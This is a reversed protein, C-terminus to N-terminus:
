GFPDIGWVGTSPGAELVLPKTEDSACRCLLREVTQHQLPLELREAGGGVAAVLVVRSTSPNTTPPDGGEAFHFHPLPPPQDRSIDMEPGNEREHPLSFLHFQPVM